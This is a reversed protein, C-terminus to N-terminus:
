NKLLMFGKITEALLDPSELMVMHGSNPITSMKCGAIRGALYRSYKPPTLADSEGCVALTPITFDGLRAMADFSDCALFDQLM